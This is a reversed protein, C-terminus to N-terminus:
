AIPLVTGAPPAVTATATMTATHLAAAMAQACTEATNAQNSFTATLAATLAAAGPCGATTGSQAGAVPLGIWFAAVAAAWAGAFTAPTGTLPNSIAALLTGMMTDTASQPITLTSTGFAGDAAYTAYDDALAGAADKAAAPMSAFTAQLASALAAQNLM